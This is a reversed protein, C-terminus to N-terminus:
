EFIVCLEGKEAPDDRLSHESAAQPLSEQQKASMHRLTALPIGMQVAMLLPDAPEEKKGGWRSRKRSGDANDAQTLIAPQSPLNDAKTGWRSRRQKPANAADGSETICSM